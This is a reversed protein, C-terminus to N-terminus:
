EEPFRLMPRPEPMYKERAEQESVGFYWGVLLEPRLYGSDVLGKRRAFEVGTDEFISDGFSVSPDFAGAPALGYLTAYIDYAYMLDLLGQRLGNEQIAKTTNYTEKDDSVVQTATMRGSKLDFSFTGPSFGTQRELLRCQIDIAKQYEEVRLAPTYDRFPDGQGMDGTLDMSLYLDTTQDRFPVGGGSKDPKIATRDVIRKRKGTHIEWLFESYIRDLEAMTDVARAYLSVPLKSTEDVTNAMPMRLEGFLPRDVGRIVVEPEMGAWEPVDTLALEGGLTDGTNYWYARNQLYLGDPQLDWAEVRVVKRGRLAAFDTFFGAETVGAGNIRTPYIRDAPIIECYINRGSPYPKVVVRGGAGALQVANKLQPLLFRTLQDNIWTGRASAGASMAIENCALTSMYDTVNIPANTVRYGAELWAPRQYFALLWGTIANAMKESIQLEGPATPVSQFMGKVAKGM